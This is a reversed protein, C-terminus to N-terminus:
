EESFGSRGLPEGNEYAKSLPHFSTEPSPPSKGLTTEYFAHLEAEVVDHAKVQATSNLM